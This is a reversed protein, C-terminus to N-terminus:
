SPWGWANQQLDTIIFIVGVGINICRTQKSPPMLRSHFSHLFRLFFSFWHICLNGLLGTLIPCNKIILNDIFLFGCLSTPGLVTSLHLNLALSRLRECLDKHPWLGALLPKELGSAISHLSLYWQSCSNAKGNLMYVDFCWFLSMVKKENGPIM